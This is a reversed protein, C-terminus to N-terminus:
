ILAIYSIDELTYEMLFRIAVGSEKQAIWEKASVDDITSGASSQNATRM